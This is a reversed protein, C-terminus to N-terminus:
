QATEYEALKRDYFADTVLWDEYLVRLQKLLGSVKSKASKKDGTAKASPVVHERKAPPDYSSDHVLAKLEQAPVLHRWLFAQMRDDAPVADHAVDGGNIKARGEIILSIPRPSDAKRDSKVTLRAVDQTGSLTVPSSSLGPLSDKLRLKISGTFGDKRLAYVSVTSSKGRLSITSPVVRLAFDPQPASLRLRYGYEEGGQRATDGVHLYYAGDAPLKAILYSDAHHTNLGSGVDAHDDNFAVPRNSADTLKLVSDLSSDLRRAYVEAVVTDGAHGAFQFVDWDDPKEIRGNVIIPLTVKQAHAPTNNPEKEVCERSNDLAFPMRNSLVGDKNCAAVMQIGAHTDKPPLVLKAAELNWGKMQITASKSVRGGLPFISTIFPLEGVTVRYVFDERGRYIADSITFVYEGDKPVEYLIVPDPKFRYDDDYAVEKGDADFLALVPQFWGPVADALYPILLRAETAIVLRQGKRATFRYRNVEGSAIQGNVTCPLQIRDEVEARPRKRLAQEEKGLVQVEATLMPKRSLEPLQGVQFVLPNTMNRLTTLRIERQGPKADGAITIELVAITSISANAPRRVYERIRKEIRAVMQLTADDQPRTASTLEQTLLLAMESTTPATMTTAVALDKKSKGRKLDRLQEGLFRLEQNGMKRFYEVLKGTVGDGSIVVGDIGDLGQGGVKIQFTTGQQGGAPYVYGIYTGSSQKKQALAASSLGLWGAVTLVALWQVKSV